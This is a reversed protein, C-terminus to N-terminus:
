EREDPDSQTDPGCPRTLVTLLDLYISEAHTQWNERALSAYQATPLRLRVEFLTGAGDRIGLKVEYGGGALPLAEGTVSNSRRYAERNEEAYADAADRASRALEKSFLANAEQGKATLSVLQLSGSPVCVIFGEEALENYAQGFDFYQPGGCLLQATYLQEPTIPSRFAGLVYLILLKTRDDGGSFFAM